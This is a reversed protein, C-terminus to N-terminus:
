PILHLVRGNQAGPMGNADMWEIVILMNHPPSNAHLVIAEWAPTTLPDGWM